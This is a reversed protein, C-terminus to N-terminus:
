YVMGCPKGWYSIDASFRPSAESPIVSQVELHCHLVHFEDKIAPYIVEAFLLADACTVYALRIVFTQEQADNQRRM